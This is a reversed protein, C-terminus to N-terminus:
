GSWPPQSVLGALHLIEWAQPSFRGPASSGKTSYGRTAQISGISFSHLQGAGIGYTDGTTRSYLVQACAADRVAAIVDADTPLGGADVDYVATLLMEDVVGSAMILARRIGTFLTAGPWKAYDGTTAYSVAGSPVDTPDASVLLTRREQSKGTGTVTWREVWEGPSDLEYSAAAWTAGGDGTSAAPATTVGAPSIVALTAVTSGDFPDVTLTPTTWDGAEHTTM